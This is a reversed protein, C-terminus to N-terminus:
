KLKRKRQRNEQYSKIAELSSVWNRGDKHAEIKGYRALLNLYKESYATRKAIQSLSLLKKNGDSDGIARLYINISREVAQAVFKILPETKDADAKELVDYYKKRDNKLIIVLPYGYQMLLLNMVLRATRGNGDFFPHINAIKHHLLAALEIINMTKQNKKTWIILERMLIPIDTADPPQHKSGTIMVAGTRYSGAIDPETEKVILHQLSRILHESVTHKKDHEILEYLYNIAEYHDKAELHEKLSKGKVTLGEGIVLYTEKLSLRNGEIANSNYTMEIAFQQKLKKVITPSLPRNDKIIKLKKEIRELLLNEM